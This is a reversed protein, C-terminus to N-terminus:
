IVHLGKVWGGKDSVFCYSNGGGGFFCFVAMEKLDLDDKCIVCACLNFILTHHSCAFPMVFRGEKRGKSSGVVVFLWYQSYIVNPNIQSFLLNHLYIDMEVLFPM